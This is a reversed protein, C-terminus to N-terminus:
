AGSKGGAGALTHPLGAGLRREREAQGAALMGGLATQEAEAAKGLKVGEIRSQPPGM